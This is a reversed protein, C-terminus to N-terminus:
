SHCTRCRLHLNTVHNRRRVPRQLRHHSGDMGACNAWTGRVVESQPGTTRVGGSTLGLTWDTFDGTHFDGNQILNTAGARAAFVALLPLLIFSACRKM